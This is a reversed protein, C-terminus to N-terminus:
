AAGPAVHEHLRSLQELFELVTRPRNGPDPDVARLLVSDAGPPIWRAHLPCTISGLLVNRAEAVPSEDWYPRRGVLAEWLLVALAYVDARQDPRTGRILEPAVYGPTGFTSRVFPRGLRDGTAQGRAECTGGDSRFFSALGFDLLSVQGTTRVVVNDPKVDLHLVGASHAAALGLGVQEILGITPTWLPNKLGHWRRFTTGSLRETVLVPIGEFEVMERMKIVNPHSIAELARAERKLQCTAHASPHAPVKLAVPRQRADKADLVLSMGGRGLVGRVEFEGMLFSTQERVAAELRQAVRVRQRM